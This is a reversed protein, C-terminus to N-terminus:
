LHVGKVPISHKNILEVVDNMKYKTALSMPSEGKQNLMYVDAGAELLINVSKYAVTPMSMHTTCDHPTNNHHYKGTNPDHRGMHERSYTTMHDHEILYHLPTSGEGSIINPNAGHDLFYKILAKKNHQGLCHLIGFGCSNVTNVDAGNTVLFEIMNINPINETITSFLVTEGKSKYELDAGHNILMTMIDTACERGYGHEAIHMYEGLESSTYQCQNIGSVKLLERICNCRGFKTALAMPTCMKQRYNSDHYNIDHFYTLDISKLLDASLNDCKYDAGRSILINLMTSDDRSIADYIPIRNTKYYEDHYIQNVDIGYNILLNFLTHNNSRIANCLHKISLVAGFSLLQEISNEMNALLDHDIDVTEIYNIEARAKILRGLSKSLSQINATM